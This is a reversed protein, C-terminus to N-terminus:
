TPPVALARLAARLAAWMAAGGHGDDTVVMQSGPWAAHLREVPDLPSSRDRGGHIFWCPVPAMAAAGRVLEDPGLWSDAAWCHTVQRAFALRFSPDAFRPDVFGDAPDTDDLDVHADEWRCWADAAPQHVAPDLDMVLRRYAEVLRM